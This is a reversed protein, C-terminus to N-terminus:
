ADDSRSIATARMAAAILDLLEVTLTVVQRPKYGHKLLDRFLSRAIIKLAKDPEVLQTV